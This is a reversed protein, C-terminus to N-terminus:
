ADELKTRNTIKTPLLIRKIREARFTLMKLLITKVQKINTQMFIEVPHLNSEGWVHPSNTIYLRVIEQFSKQPKFPDCYYTYM